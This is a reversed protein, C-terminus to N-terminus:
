ELGFSVARFNESQPIKGVDKRAKTESSESHHCLLDESKRGTYTVPNTFLPRICADLKAVKLM